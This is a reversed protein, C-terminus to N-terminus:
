YSGSVFVCTTFGSGSTRSGSSVEFIKVAFTHNRIEKIMEKEIKLKSSHQLIKRAAEMNFRGVNTNNKKKNWTTSRDSGWFKYLLAPQELSLELSTSSPDFTIVRIKFKTTPTFTLTTKVEHNIVFVFSNLIIHIIRVKQICVSRYFQILPWQLDRSHMVLHVLDVSLDV